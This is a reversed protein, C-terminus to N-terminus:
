NVMVPMKDSRVLIEPALRRVMVLMKGLRVLISDAHMKAM